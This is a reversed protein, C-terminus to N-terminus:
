HKKNRDWTNSHLSFKIGRSWAKKALYEAALTLRAKIWPQDLKKVCSTGTSYILHKGWKKISLWTEYLQTFALAQEKIMQFKDGQLM